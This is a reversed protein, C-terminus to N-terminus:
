SVRKWRYCVYYPPMNNHSSDGGNIYLHYVINNETGMNDFETTPVNRGIAFHFQNDGVWSGGTDCKAANVYQNASVKLSPIENQTLKHAAEGGKSGATYNDGAALLFCDKIQEWEGIGFLDKPNTPVTLDIIIGVPYIVEFIDYLEKKGTM